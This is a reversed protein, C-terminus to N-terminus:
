VCIMKCPRSRTGDLTNPNACQVDSCQVSHIAPNSQQQAEWIKLGLEVWIRAQRSASARGGGVGLIRQGPARTPQALWTEHTRALAM